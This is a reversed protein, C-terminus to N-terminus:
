WRSRAPSAGAAPASVGRAFVDTWAQRAFHAIFVLLCAFLAWVLPQELQFAIGAWRVITDATAKGVNGLLLMSFVADIWLVLPLLILAVRATRRAGRPADDAGPLSWLLPLLWLAFIWRYAFNTSTFFCGTLLVAGLTFHLWDSEDGGTRWGAFPQALWAWVFVAAGLAAGALTAARASLGLAEFSTSASFTMLGEAKTVPQVFHVVDGGVDLAVLLLLGLGFLLLRPTERRDRGGALLLVAAAPYYKLGAAFAVLAPAFFRAVRHRSRLCPVLLALAAFIALDNNARNVALLVGPACLAALYYFFQRPERPRLRAVAAAFFAGVLALGVGLNDARTLGLHRLGLWWHSYVHPRHFYDLPNPAYPDLGRTVADNSALVAFSDLFWVGYHNVGVLWFLAPHFAFSAYYCAAALGLLVWLRKALAADAPVNM